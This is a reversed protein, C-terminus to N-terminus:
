GPGRSGGMPTQDAGNDPNQPSTLGVPDLGCHRVAAEDLMRGLGGREAPVFGLADRWVEDDEMCLYVCVRPAHRRIAAAVERYAQMRLPKFYRVKRDLGTVFEGYVIKSDPFRREVIPKLGPMFRLTGLSIWVIQRPDIRRFLRDVVEAYEAGSDHYVVIPDFHFALPYGAAACEAAADLRRALSTTGREQERIVTPTNLSWSLITKRNHRLGQLGAIRTTKTKLELVARDQDAFRGVLRSCLGTWPEWILSDTFEGTGIRHIGPEAMLRELDAWMDAHNLFYQLVPPNFYAQLICYACDMSCYTGVHLIRYGCCTYHRTGPCDRVFAGRNRTLFLIQKGRAIPDPAAAVDAHVRETGSVIEVPVQFQACIAAADAHEVVDADVYIKTIRM